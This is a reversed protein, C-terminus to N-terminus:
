HKYILKGTYEGELTKVLITYIGSTFDHFPVVMQNAKELKSQFIPKGELNHVQVSVMEVPSKIFLTDSTPNPYFRIPLKQQNELTSVTLCNAATGVSEEFKGNEVAWHLWYGDSGSARLVLVDGGDARELFWRMANDNEVSGGMM